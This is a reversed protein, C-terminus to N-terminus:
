ENLYAECADACKQCAEACKQCHDHDHKGCEEACKRCIEMCVQIMSKVDAFNAALLNATTRCIEACARDLRICPVMMKINDEDLCADACHNCHAICNNLAEILNSNKM